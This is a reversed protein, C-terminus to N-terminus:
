GKSKQQHLYSEIMASSTAVGKFRGITGIFFSFKSFVDRSTITDWHGCSFFDELFITHV